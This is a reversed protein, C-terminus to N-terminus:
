RSPYLRQRRRPLHMRYKLVQDLKQVELADLVIDETAFAAVDATRLYEASLYQALRQGSCVVGNLAPHRM